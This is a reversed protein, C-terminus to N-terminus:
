NTEIEWGNGDTLVWWEGNEYKRTAPKDTYDTEAKLVKKKEPVLYMAMLERVTKTEFWSKPYPYRKMLEEILIKKQYTDNM